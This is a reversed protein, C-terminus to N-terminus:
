RETPHKPTIKYTANSTNQINITYVMMPIGIM